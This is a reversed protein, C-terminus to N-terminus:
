LAAKLIEGFRYIDEYSTYLPIPAMRIANPERWDSIVGEETLTDFLAKGYGHAIVSVQCGREEWNRPTIIELSKGEETLTSNVEDVIFELYGSILKQKKLLKDMGVEDFIDIAAKHAAMTLVPANSMQWAEASKMPKFGPEMLFRTEKEHGWWGALRPLETNNCHRENVFIGSVGGPGSNLYKYSCWCAFDVDWEHLKLEINGAGHALDFGCNAGVKHAAATIAKMDFVQGTFYNVGGIMV